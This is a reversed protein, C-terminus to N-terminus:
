GYIVGGAADLTIDMGDKLLETAGEVRALCPIGIEKAVICVHTLLGGTECVLGAATMVGIAFAPSSHAVVMIDGDVVKKVDAASRVIKVKGTVRGTSVTLGRGIVGNDQKM